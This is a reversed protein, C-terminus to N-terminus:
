DILYLEFIHTLENIDIKKSARVILGVMDEEGPRVVISLPTVIAGSMGLLPNYSVIGHYRSPTLSLNPKIMVTQNSSIVGDEIETNDKLNIITGADALLCMRDQPHIRVKSEDESKISYLGPQGLLKVLSSQPM